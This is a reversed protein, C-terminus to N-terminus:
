AQFHMDLALSEAKRPVCNLDTLKFALGSPASEDHTFAVRTDDTWTLRGLGRGYLVGMLEQFFAEGDKHIPEPEGPLGVARWLKEHEQWPMWSLHLGFHVVHGGAQMSLSGERGLDNSVSAVGYKVMLQVLVQAVQADVSPSNSM